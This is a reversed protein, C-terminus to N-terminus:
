RRAYRKTILEAAEKGSAASCETGIKGRPANGDGVMYLGSIPTNVPLCSGVVRRGAPFNGSFKAKVLIEAEDKFGPFNAELEDITRQLEENLNATAYNEPAGYATHLYRGEPSLTGPSIVSPIELYILNRNNGFVLCGEFDPLLPRNMVFSVHYIPVPTSNEHLKKVYSLEFESEGGALDVTADPGLNSVVVDAVILEEEGKENAVLVGKVAGHEHVIGKCGVQYRLTGGRRTFGALLDEVLARNGRRALGFRTGKSSYKLFLFFDYAKIEHTRVGMLAACYGDFLNKLGENDTYQAFWESVTITDMPLWDYLATKIHGLIREAEEDNQMAFKIMGALGGGGAPLDYDGHPLRYRMRGTVDVMDMDVDLADFAQRIASTPGMPIMLAGTTVTCGDRERDSCRGGPYRTKELLTVDFGQALLYASACIGGLGAGVVVVRVSESM